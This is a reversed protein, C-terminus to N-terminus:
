CKSQSWPFGQDLQGTAPGEPHLSVELWCDPKLDAFGLMLGWDTSNHKRKRKKRKEWCTPKKVIIQIHMHNPYAGFWIYCM